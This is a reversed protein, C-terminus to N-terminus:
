TAWLAGLGQYIVTPKHRPKLIVGKLMTYSKRRVFAYLKNVTIRFCVLLTRQPTNEMRKDLIRPKRFIGKHDAQVTALKTSRRTLDGGLWAGQGGAGGPTCGQKLEAEWSGLGM